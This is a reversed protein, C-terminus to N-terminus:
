VVTLENWFDAFVVLLCNKFICLASSFLWQFMVRTIALLIPFGTFGLCSFYFVLESNEIEELEEATGYILGGNVEQLCVPHDAPGAPPFELLSM